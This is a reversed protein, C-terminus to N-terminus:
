QSSWPLPYKRRCTPCQAYPLYPEVALKRHYNRCFWTGVSDTFRSLPKEKEGIRSRQELVTAETQQHYTTRFYVEKMVSWRFAVDQPKSERVVISPNESFKTM